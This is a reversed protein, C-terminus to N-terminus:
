PKVSLTGAGHKDSRGPETSPCWTWLQSLSTTPFARAALLIPPTPPEGLPHRTMQPSPPLPPAPPKQPQLRPHYPCRCPAGVANYRFCVCLALTFAIRCRLECCQCYLILTYKALGTRWWFGKRPWYEIWSSRTTIDRDAVLRTSKCPIKPPSSKTVNIACTSKWTRCEVQLLSM